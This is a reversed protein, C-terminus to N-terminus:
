KIRSFLDKYFNAVHKLSSVSVWEETQHANGGLPGITIIPIGANALVNQDAVSKTYEYMITGFRAKSIKEVLRIYKNKKSVTYPLIYPTMRSKIKVICRKALSKELVGKLYLKKIFDELDKRVRETNQSPIMQYDIDLEVKDSLSLGRSDSQIFRVFFSSEGFYRHHKRKWSSLNNVFIAAQNIANIGNDQAGHSGKGPIQVELVCRGRGGIVLMAPLTWNPPVICAEPCFAVVVDDIFSSNILKYVGESMGEEDVCFALKLKHNKLELQGIVSLIAAIGGKMDFSGLGLLRNGKRQLILPSTKWNEAPYVTDIHMYVLVSKKGKGREALLNFRKWSIRQKRIEFNRKSLFNELYSYPENEHPVYSKFKVLTRLIQEIDDQM